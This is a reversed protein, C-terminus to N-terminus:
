KKDDRFGMKVQLKWCEDLRHKVGSAGADSVKPHDRHMTQLDQYRKRAERVERAAFHIEALKYHCTGNQVQSFEPHNELLWAYYGRAEVFNILYALGSSNIYRVEGMQLLFRRYHRGQLANMQTEFVKINRADIPGNFSILAGDPLGPVAGVEIKFVPIPM